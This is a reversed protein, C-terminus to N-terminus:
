RNRPLQSGRPFDDGDFRAATSPEGAGAPRWEVPPHAPRAVRPRPLREAAAAKFADTLADAKRSKGLCDYEYVAIEASVFVPMMSLRESFRVRRWFPSTSWEAVEPDIGIRPNVAVETDPDWPSVTIHAVDAAGDRLVRNGWELAVDCGSPVQVVPEMEALYATGDVLRRHRDIRALRNIWGLYNADTDSAFPQMTRLMERHHDELSQLRGLNTNWATESDYIPYQLRQEDPPPFQGSVHVATAWITYDLASRLNYLWEGMVVAFDSPFPRDQWVRVIYRGNGEHTLSSGYPHDAIYDNWIEGLRRRHENARDWRHWCPAFYNQNM